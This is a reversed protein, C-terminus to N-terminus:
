ASRVSKFKLPLGSFLDAVIQEVDFADEDLRCLYGFWFDASVIAGRAPPSALTLTTPESLLWGAVPVSDVRIAAVSLVCGVPEQFQGITRLATFSRTAGDGIGLPEGQAYYDARDVFVFPNARGQCAHFFSILNEVSNAQAGPYCDGSALANHTLEFEYRPWRWRALRAERGSVSESVKTNWVQKKRIPWAAGPLTPFVLM